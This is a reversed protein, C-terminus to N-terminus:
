IILDELPKTFTLQVPIPALTAAASGELTNTLGWFWETESPLAGSQDQLSILQQSNKKQQSDIKRASKSTDKESFNNSFPNLTPFALSTLFWSSLNKCFNSANTLSYHWKYDKWRGNVCVKISKYSSLPTGSCKCGYSLADSFSKVTLRHNM